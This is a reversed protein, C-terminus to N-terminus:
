ELFGRVQKQFAAPSFFAEFEFSSITQFEPLGETFLNEIPNIYKRLEPSFGRSVQQTGFVPLKQAFAEIAKIKIGGGFIVPVVVADLGSYFNGLHEIRGMVRVNGPVEGIKESAVGAVHLKISHSELRSNYKKLFWVLSLLNPKHNFNGLFGIVKIEPKAIRESLNAQPVPNPLWLSNRAARSRQMDGHGAFFNVKPLKTYKNELWRWLFFQFVSGPFVVIGNKAFSLSYDSWLDMWDFILKEKPFKKSLSKFAAPVTVVMLDFEGEVKVKRQFPIPLIKSKLLHIVSKSGFYENTKELLPVVHVEHGLGRLVELWQKIRISGGDLALESESLWYVVGIKM